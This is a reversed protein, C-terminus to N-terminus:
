KNFLSFLYTTQIQASLSNTLNVYFTLKVLGFTRIIDVLRETCVLCLKGRHDKRLLKKILSFFPSFQKIRFKKPGKEGCRSEVRM